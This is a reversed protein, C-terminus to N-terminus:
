AREGLIVTFSQSGGGEFRSISGTNSRDSMIRHLEGCVGYLSLPMGYVNIIERTAEQPLLPQVTLFKSDPCESSGM